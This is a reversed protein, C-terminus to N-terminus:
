SIVGSLKTPCIVHYLRFIVIITITITITIIIIYSVSTYASIDPGSVM